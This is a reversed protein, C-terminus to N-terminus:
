LSRLPSAGKDRLAQEVQEAAAEDRPRAAVAHRRDDGDLRHKMADSVATQDPRLSFLGALMGGFFLGFVGAAIMTLWPSGAAAPWSAIAIAGILLGVALGAVFLVAHSKVITRGIAAPEPQFKRAAQPDDPKVVEVPTGPEVAARAAAAAEAAREADPYDATVLTQSKEASLINPNM